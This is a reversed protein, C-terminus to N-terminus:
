RTILSLLCPLYPNKHGSLLGQDEIWVVQLMRPEQLCSKDPGSMRYNKVDGHYQLLGMERFIGHLGKKEPTQRGGQPQM